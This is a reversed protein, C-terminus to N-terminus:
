NIENIKKKAEELKEQISVKNSKTGVWIKDQKPHKEIKFYERSRTKEKNLWEHYYVVYKPLDEQNIGEPLPKANHKRNRKDTNANQESQTAWRLNEIRNDLKNRNIHDVSKTFSEDGKETKCILQHLYYQNRKGDDNEITTIYGNESKFWTKNIIYNLSKLSFLFYYQSDNCNMIYFKSKNIDTKEYVLWYKNFIQGSKKGKYILHGNFSQVIEYINLFNDPVIENETILNEERNDLINKNKHIVRKKNQKNIQDYIHQHMKLIKKGENINLSTCIGYTTYYWTHDILHDICNLSIYTQINVPECLMIYYELDLKSDYVKCYPNSHKGANKGRTQRFGEFTEKVIHNEPIKFKSIDFNYNIEIKINKRSYNYKNKDIFSINKNLIKDGIIKEILYVKNYDDDRCYLLNNKKDFKWSIKKKDSLTDYLYYMDEPSDFILEDDKFPVKLHNTERDLKLNM